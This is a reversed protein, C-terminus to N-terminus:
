VLVLAAGTEMKHGGAVESIGVVNRLVGLGAFLSIYLGCILGYALNRVVHLEGTSAARIVEAAFATLLLLGATTVWPILQSDVMLPAFQGHHFAITAAPGLLGISAVILNPRLGKAMFTRLIEALGLGAVATVAICFPEAGWLCLGIFVPIGVAASAVRTLM